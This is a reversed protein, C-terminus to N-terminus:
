DIPVAYCTAHWLGEGFNVASKGQLEQMDTKSHFCDAEGPGPSEKSLVM